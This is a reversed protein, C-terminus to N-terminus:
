RTDNGYRVCRSASSPTRRERLQTRDPKRGDSGGSVQLNVPYAQVLSVAEDRYIKAHADTRRLEREPPECTEGALRDLEVSKVSRRGAMITEHARQM